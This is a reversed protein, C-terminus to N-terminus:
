VNAYKLDCKYLMDFLNSNNKIEKNKNKLKEFNKM